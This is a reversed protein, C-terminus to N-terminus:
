YRLGSVCHRGSIDDDPIIPVLTFIGQYPLAPYKREFHEILHNCESMQRLADIVYTDFPKGTAKALQMAEKLIGLTMDKETSVLRFEDPVKSVLSTM